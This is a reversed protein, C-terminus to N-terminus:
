LDSARGAPRLRSEGGHGEADAVAGRECSELARAPAAGMFSGNLWKNSLPMDRVGKSCTANEVVPDHGQRRGGLGRALRGLWRTSSSSTAKRIQDREVPAGTRWQDKSVRPIGISVDQFANHTFGSCDIGQAHARGV